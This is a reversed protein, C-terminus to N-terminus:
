SRDGREQVAAHALLADLIVTLLRVAEDCASAAGSVTDAQHQRRELATEMAGQTVALAATLREDLSAAFRRCADDVKQRMMWRLNEVNRRTVAAVEECLQRRARRRRIANPILREIAGVTLNAFTETRGDVVWGALRPIEPPDSAEPPELPLDMLSAATQRVSAALADARQQHRGLAALLEREIGEAIERQAGEFLMPVRAALAARAAAPDDGNRAAADAERGLQDEASRSLREFEEEIRASLRRRDGAIQDAASRREDEFSGVAVGFRAIREALDELPMRLAHLELEADMRMSGVVAAAKSAVAAGLVEAREGGLLAALYREVVGLGSAEVAAADGALRAQLGARASVPFIPVDPPLGAQETLVRRLFGVSVERDGHDVTDSKNLVVALRAVFPRIEALYALEVDTIPPDPSVVFLAVDCEPLAARAAATNHHLTSGVGSTDLLVVGRELLVSPLGAEVRALGLRNKPNGEETVLGALERQLEEGDALVRCESTGDFFEVRLRPPSAHSLFTALATLPLVGVPLVPGGLLANALSSKGRKFQGLVAVQLRATALRTSLAELQRLHGAQAVSNGSTCSMAQAMLDAVTAASRGTDAVDHIDAAALMM